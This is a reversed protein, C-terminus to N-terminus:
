IIHKSYPAEHPAQQPAEYPAEYPNYKPPNYATTTEMVVATQQNEIVDGQDDDNPTCCDPCYKDMMWPAPDDNYVLTFFAKGCLAFISLVLFCSGLVRLGEGLSGCALMIIGMLLGLLLLVTLVTSMRCCSKSEPEVLEAVPESQECAAKNYIQKQSNPHSYVSKLHERWDKDDEPPQAKESTSRTGTSWAAQQAPEEIAYASSSENKPKKKFFKGFGKSQPDETKTSSEHKEEMETQTTSDDDKNKKWFGGFAKSKKEKKNKNQTSAQELAKAFDVDQQAAVPAFQLEDYQPQPPTFDGPHSDFSSDNLSM